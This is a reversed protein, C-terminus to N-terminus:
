KNFIQSSAIVSRGNFFIMNIWLSANGLGEAVLGHIWLREKMRMTMQNEPKGKKYCLIGFSQTEKASMYLLHFM